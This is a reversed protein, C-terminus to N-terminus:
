VTWTACTPWWPTSSRPASRDPQSSLDTQVRSIQVLFHERLIEVQHLLILEDLRSTAGHIIRIVYLGGLLLVLSYAALGIIIKRKM